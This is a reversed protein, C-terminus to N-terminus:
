ELINILEEKGVVTKDNLVEYRVIFNNQVDLYILYKQPYMGELDNMEYVYCQNIVIKENLRYNRKIERVCIHYPQPLTKDIWCYGAEKLYFKRENIFISNGKKYIKLHNDSAYEQFIDKQLNTEKYFLSRSPEHKKTSVSQEMGAKVYTSDKTDFVYRNITVSDRSFYILFFPIIFFTLTIYAFGALRSKITLKGLERALRLPLTNVFPICFFILVGFLNFLFHCLAIGFAAQTQSFALILAKFTTGINAGMIFNFASKLSLRNSAVVPVVLSTVISSSQVLATVVTGSVLTQFPNAFLYNQIATPGEDILFKKLQFTILKITIFLISLAFILGLFANFRAVYSLPLIIIDLFYKLPNFDWLYINGVQSFSGSIFKASRSLIGFSYELPFLIIATLINFFDHVTGAAIAKRFEKKHIIHGFSVISSTVTTGINAGMVMYVGQELNITGSAVLAIIMATVTSSSQILATILLGIFLGIFPNSTAIFIYEIINKGLLKFSYIMWELSVLFIFVFLLLRLAVWVYKRGQLENM